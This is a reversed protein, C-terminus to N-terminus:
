ASLKKLNGDKDQVFCLEFEGNLMYIYVTDEGDTALILTVGGVKDVDSEFGGAKSVAVLEDTEADTKGIATKISTSNNDYAFLLDEEYVNYGYSALFTCIRMRESTRGRTLTWLICISFVCICIIIIIRKAKNSLSM